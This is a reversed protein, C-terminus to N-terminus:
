TQETTDLSHMLHIRSRAPQDRNSRSHLPRNFLLLNTPFLLSFGGFAWLLLGSTCLWGSGCASIQEKEKTSWHM